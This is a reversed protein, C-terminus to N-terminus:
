VIESLKLKIQNLLRQNRTKSAFEEAYELCLKAGERYNHLELHAAYLTLRHAAECHTCIRDQISSCFELKYKAKITDHYKLFAFAKVMHADAQEHPAEVERCIAFANDLCTEAYDLKDVFAAWQGLHILSWAEGVKADMNQYIRLAKEYRIKSKELDGLRSALDGLARLANAEGVKANMNQYIRLAKEYRVRAEKLDGTEMVVNGLAWLVNAEGSQDQLRKLRSLIKNGVEEAEKYRNHITYSLTLFYGLLGLASPKKEKQPPACPLDVTFRLNPEDVTFYFRYEKANKSGHHLYLKEAYEGLFEVIKPGYYEKVEETLVSMAFFRVPPLLTVRKYERIEALSADNLEQVYEWATNGYIKKLMDQQAGAPLMSLIEFLTKAKESLIHHASALSAVLSEGHSFDRDTINKIKIAKAKYVKIREILDELFIGPALQRAILIISLPHGGLQELLDPFTHSQQEKQLIERKTTARFLLAADNQELSYLRHVREPEYLNGEVPRQSTILLRTHPTFKFISDIIDQMTNEDQWLIDEANDLLLLCHREQLYTIVNKLESFQVGFTAGLLDIIGDATDTERLDIYYVGDPFYTRSCFWRAVEIALTTKGIGGVGTITVFRNALLECIITHMEESRGTFSQPKVPLNSPSPAPEEITVIGQPVESLLHDSHTSEKPLLVFKKEEPIFQEKKKYAAFELHRKIRMLEPNGEVLLKAMEYAKQLADGQFLSRFFQGVFAIAAHDLIPADCKIAVVHPIGAEVLLAGIKESHCASVVALEFPGGMQIFRKLYDGTVPQSGGKGDEFLLFEERGHCSVHLINFGEEISKALEDVTAVGIRFSIEKKCTSLEHIIADKEAKMDLADLPSGDPAVLPASYLYLIKPHNISM